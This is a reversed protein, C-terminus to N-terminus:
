DTSNQMERAQKSTKRICIYNTHFYSYSNSYSYPKRDYEFVIRICIHFFRRFIRIFVSVFVSVFRIRCAQMLIYQFIEALKGCSIRYCRSRSRNRFCRWTRGNWWWFTWTRSVSPLWSRRLSWPSRRYRPDQELLRVWIKIVKRRYRLCSFM